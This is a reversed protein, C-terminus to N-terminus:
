KTFLLEKLREMDDKFTFVGNGTVTDEDIAPQSSHRIGSVLSLDAALLGYHLQRSPAAVGTLICATVAVHISRFVFTVNFFM